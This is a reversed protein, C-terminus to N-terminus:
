HLTKPYRIRLTDLIIKKTLGGQLWKREHICKSDAISKVFQSNIKKQMRSSVM